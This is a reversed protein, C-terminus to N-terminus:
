CAASSRPSVLHCASSFKWESSRTCLGAKVPNNRIYDVVNEYHVFNRIYRDYYERHWFEGRRSLFRNAYRATYSKWSGLISSLTYGTNVTLLLHVHNPMIVWEHLAYRISDFHLFADQVIEAVEGKRLYCAGYGVDLFQEIRKRKESARKEEPFADIEGLIKLATKRPLSDFLRFTVFQAVHASDFHPLYGRSRWGDDSRFAKIEKDM